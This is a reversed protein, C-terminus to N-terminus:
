EVKQFKSYFPFRGREETPRRKWRKYTWLWQDPHERVLEEVRRTIDDTIRQHDASRDGTSQASIEEDFRLTVKGDADPWGVGMVIAAGTRRALEAVATSNFVPLGFFNAWVGGRNRRGNVDVLMATAGGRAVQRFLKLVAFQPPVVKHGSGSRLKFMLDSVAPNRTPEAVILLPVGVFGMVLSGMEWNGLHPTCFLIGRGQAQLRRVLQESKEDLRVYRSFNEATLNPAWFLGAMTRCLNRFSAKAIRKKEAPTKTSGFAIDLNAFAVRRDQRLLHFTLFALGDALKLMAPHPLSQIGWAAANLLAGEISYRIQKLAGPRHESPGNTDTV